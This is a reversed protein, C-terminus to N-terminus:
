NGFLVDIPSSGTAMAEHVKEQEKAQAALHTTVRAASADDAKSASAAAQAKLRESAAVWAARETTKGRNYMHQGYLHLSLWALGLALLPLGIYAILKAAKAGFWGTLLAIM